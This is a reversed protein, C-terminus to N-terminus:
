FLDKRILLMGLGTFLQAALGSLDESLGFSEGVLHDRLGLRCLEQMLYHIVPFLSEHLLVAIECKLSRIYSLVVDRLTPVFAIIFSRKDYM